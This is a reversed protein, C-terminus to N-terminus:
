HIKKEFRQKETVIRLSEWSQYYCYKQKAAYLYHCNAYNAFIDPANEIFGLVAWDIKDAIIITLGILVNM